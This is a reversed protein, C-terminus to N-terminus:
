VILAVALAAIVVSSGIATAFRGRPGTLVRGLLGGGAALLLQWSASAIFAAGVFV